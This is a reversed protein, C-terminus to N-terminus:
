DRWIILYSELDIRAAFGDGQPPGGDLGAVGAQYTLTATSGPTVADTVDFVTPLVERGPCWGGRGFFWTGFQNPVTGNVVDEVCGLPANAEPHSKVFPTGDVTFTHEHDCFEACNYDDNGFGHGSITAVLEVRTADAPIDVELPEHRSNYDPDFRGGTFLPIYGSPHGSVEPDDSLRLDISTIYPNGGRWQFRTTGGRQLLALAFSADHIYRGERHYTTVWRGIEECPCDCAGYGTGEGNCTQVGEHTTGDPQTCTCEGTDAPIEEVAEVAPAYGICTLGPAPETDLSTDGSGSDAAASDASATDSTGSCDADTRCTLATPTDGDYCTGLVEEAAATGPVRPQCAEDARPNPLADPLGCVYLNALYDWAPCNGYERLPDDGECDQTVDFALTDFGAMTEADPLEIDVTRNHVVEEDFLAVTTISDAEAQLSAERQALFNAYVAENAIMSMNPGFWGVFQDYRDPDALSGVDRLRQHRDIVFGYGTAVWKDALWNKVDSMGRSVFHLRDRWPDAKDPKWDDLVETFTAELAEMDQRADPGDAFFVYHVNPPSARLLDKHDRDHITESFAQTSLDDQPVFVYVDCGTWHESLTLRGQTTPLGFDEALMERRLGFPGETDFPVAALGDHCTTSSPASGDPEHDTCAALGLALGLLVPTSTRFGLM